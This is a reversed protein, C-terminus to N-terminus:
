FGDAIRIKAINLDIWVPGCHGLVDSTGTGKSGCLIVEAIQWAQIQGGGDALGSDSRQWRGPRFRIEAMQWAQIQDGGDALGSDSKRWRGPRFRVEAMKWAQIQDGGDALGSDPGQWRGTRFRVEAM